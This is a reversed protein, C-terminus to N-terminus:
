HDEKKGADKDDDIQWIRQTKGRLKMIPARRKQLEVLIRIKEPFSLKARERRYALKQESIQRLKDDDM